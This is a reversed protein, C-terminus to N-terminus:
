PFRVVEFLKSIIQPERQCGPQMTGGNVCFDIHGVPASEGLIGANTHIVQVFNADDRTLRFMSSGYRDVLPRAPDLGTYNCNM